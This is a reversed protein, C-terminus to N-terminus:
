VAGEPVLAKEEIFRRMARLARESYARYRQRRPMRACLPPMLGFNPKMPQFDTVNRNSVYSSLAGIMTEVPFVVPDLGQALRAANVGAVLGSATSAMYGETGTIQGAFFLGRRKERFEFTPNLLRPSDIFTNRHMQGFRVFEVRELGPIMRFVRAQEGHRLNTQFGVMNYLTAAANDQRLQVVAFPQKGTRPDVLGVPKLPGHALALEGRRAIVEVPLCGEFFQKDEQEFAHLPITEANALEHVFKRYQEESMPCNIYDTDEGYRGGRFAITMDISDASVIPAIADFFAIRATGTLRTVSEALRDSALPGAAVVVIGEDPVETVEDHVVSINTHSELRETVESSFGHRDVALARGAPVAHKFACDLIISGLLRLEQKLLGAARDPLTSGLSNSCVLEAFLGTTHAPTMRVPRMEYLLVSLGRRAIQWAAESGALGAGIVVIPEAGM